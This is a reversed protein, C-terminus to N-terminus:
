FFRGAYLGRAKARTMAERYWHEAQKVYGEADAFAEPPHSAAYDPGESGYRGIVSDLSRM